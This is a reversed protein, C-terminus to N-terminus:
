GTSKAKRTNAKIYYGVNKKKNECDLIKDDDIGSMSSKGRCM